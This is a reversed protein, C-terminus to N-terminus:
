RDLCIYIIKPQLNNIFFLGTGVGINNEMRMHLYRELNPSWWITNCNKPIFFGLIPQLM